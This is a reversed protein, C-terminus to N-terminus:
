QKQLIPEKIPLNARMEFSTEPFNLTKKYDM